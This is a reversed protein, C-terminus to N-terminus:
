HGRVQQVEPRTEAERVLTDVANDLDHGRVGVYRVTGNADLVYVTPWGHIHYRQCIPGDPGGDWWSRGPIREQAALVQVERPDADSNVGLFAFPRDRYREELSRGHAYL